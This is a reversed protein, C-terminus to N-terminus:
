HREAPNDQKWRALRVGRAKPPFTTCQKGTVRRERIGAIPRYNCISTYGRDEPLIRRTVDSCRVHGSAFSFFHVGPLELQRRGVGREREGADNGNGAHYGCSAATRGDSRRLRGINGVAAIRGGPIGERGIASAKIVLGVAIARWQQQNMPVTSRDSTELSLNPIKRAMVAYNRHIAASLALGLQTGCSQGIFLHRFIRIRQQIM